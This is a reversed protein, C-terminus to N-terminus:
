VFPPTIEHMDLPAVLGAPATTEFIYGYPCDNSCSCPTCAGWDSQFCVMKKFAYGFGGRFTSGQYAPMHLEDVAELDFRYRAIRFSELMVDWGRTPAAGCHAQLGREVLCHTSM